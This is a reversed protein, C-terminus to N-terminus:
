TNTVKIAKWWAGYAVNMRGRAGWTLLDKEKVSSDTMQPLDLAIPKEVQHLFPKFVPEDTLVAYWDNADDDSLAPITTFDFVDNVANDSNNFFTKNKLNFFQGHLTSPAVILLRMGRSKNLARNSANPSQDYTFGALRSMVTIIDTELQTISTGTGTVINNETGANPSYSHTASFFNQGDFTTGFTNTDGATLMDFAREVPLDKAMRAIDSIRTKYPDLMGLANNRQNAAREIDEVPIDVGMDWKKNVVRFQFGDPFTQHERTGTWEELTRLFNFYPFRNSDVMGGNYSYILEAFDPNFEQYLRNYETRVVINFEKVLEATATM